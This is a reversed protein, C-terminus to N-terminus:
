LVELVYPLSVVENFTPQIYTEHQGTYVEMLRGGQSMFMHGSFLSQSSLPSRLTNHHNKLIM